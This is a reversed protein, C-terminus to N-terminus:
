RAPVYLNLSYRESDASTAVAVTYTGDMPLQVAASTVDRVMVVGTPAFISLEAQDGLSLLEVELVQGARAQLEYSHAETRRLDSVYNAQDLGPEFSVPFRSFETAWPPLVDSATPAIGSTDTVDAVTFVQLEKGSALASGDAYAREWEDEGAGTDGDPFRDVIADCDVAAYDLAPTSLRDGALTWRDDHSYDEGSESGTLTVALATGQLTGELNEYLGYANGQAADTVTTSVMGLVAGGEFVQLHVASDLDEGEDSRGRGSFCYTGVLPTADSPTSAAALAPTPTASSQASPASPTTATACGLTTAALAIAVWTRSLTTNM